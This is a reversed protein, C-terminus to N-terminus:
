VKVTRFAAARGLRNMVALGVGEAPVVESYITEMGEEDVRRLIDFLRHAVEADNGRSGLDHPDCDSLTQLHETFCLVCSKRGADRDGMCSKRLAKLVKEEEGEILTVTGRPADADFRSVSLPKEGAGSVTIKKVCAHLFPLVQGDMTKAYDESYVLGEENFGAAM